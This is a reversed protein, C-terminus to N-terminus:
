HHEFGELESVRNLMDNLDQLAEESIRIGIM